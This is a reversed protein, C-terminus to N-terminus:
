SREDSTFVKEILDSIKETVFTEAEELAAAADSRIRVEQRGVMYFLGDLARGTAYEVIDTDLSDISSVGAQEIADLSLRATAAAVPDGSSATTELNLYAGAVVNYRRSFERWLREVTYDIGFATVQVSGFTSDIIPEFGATLVGSTTEWLYHTAGLSDTGFVIQKASSVTMERIATTFVEVSLGAAMEAGRNIGRIMADRYADLDVGALALLAKGAAISNLLDVTTFAGEVDDPLEIRLLENALYGTIYGLTNTTGSTDSLTFAATKSGLILAERVGEIVVEESLGTDGGGLSEDFLSLFDCSSFLLIFCLTVSRISMKM